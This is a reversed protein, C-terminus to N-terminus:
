KVKEKRERKGSEVKGEAIIKRANVDKLEYSCGIFEDEDDFIIKYGGPVAEITGLRTSSYDVLKEGRYIRCVVFDSKKNTKIIM